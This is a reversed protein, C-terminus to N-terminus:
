PCEVWDPWLYMSKGKLEVSYGHDHLTSVSLLSLRLSPVYLVGRFALICGLELVM